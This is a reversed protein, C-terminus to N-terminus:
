SPMSVQHMTVITHAPEAITTIIGSVQDRQLPLVALIATQFSNVYGTAIYLSVDILIDWFVRATLASQWKPLKPSGNQCDGQGRRGACATRGDYGSWHPEVLV